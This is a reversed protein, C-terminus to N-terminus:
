VLYEFCLSLFHFEYTQYTPAAHDTGDQHLAHLFLAVEVV